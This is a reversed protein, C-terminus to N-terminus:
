TLKNFHVTFRCHMYTHLRPKNSYFTSYHSTICRFVILTNTITVTHKEKYNKRAKSLKNSFSRFFWNVLFLDFADGNREMTQILGFIICKTFFVYIQEYFYFNNKWKSKYRLKYNQILIMYIVAVPLFQIIKQNSLKKKHARM